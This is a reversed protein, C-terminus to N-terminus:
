YLKISQEIQEIDSTMKTRTVSDDSLSVQKGTSALLIQEIKADTIEGDIALTNPKNPDTANASGPLYITGNSYDVVFAIIGPILFFLLGVADLAVVTPDLRGGTQGKREPYFLTGCGSVQITFALMAATTIAKKGKINM